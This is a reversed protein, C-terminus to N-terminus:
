KLEPYQNSFNWISQDLLLSSVIDNASNKETGDLKNYTHKYSDANSGVFTITMKALSYCNTISANGKGLIKNLNDKNTGALENNLAASKNITTSGEALGAVGGVSDKGSVTARSYSSEIESDKMYGVLGGTCDASSNIVKDTVYSNIISSNELSGALGGVNNAAGTVNISSSCQEIVSDSVMSGCVGGINM